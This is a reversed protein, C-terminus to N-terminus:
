VYSYGVQTASLLTSAKVGQIPPAQLKENPNSPGSGPHLRQWQDWLRDINAHHLFFLPDSPSAATDMNGGVAAHVRDHLHELAFQFTTFDAIATVATLEAATPLPTPNWSRTVSWSTLRAPTSIPGPPTRDTVWDWYPLTTGPHERQLRLEFQRLYRRHWVLFNRGDSMAGGMYHVGWTSMHSMSMAQVHLNVFARYAPAKAKIGHMADIAALLGTWDGQSWNRQNRRVDAM